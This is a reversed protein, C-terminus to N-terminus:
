PFLGRARHAEAVRGIALALAALRLRVGSDDAYSRCADYSREMIERLRANVEDESWFYAAIDQVWEFYSVTVGGSNALIDPVVLTGRENLITDAEPTTPGNAGEVVISARVRDANAETIQDELAAPVLMDCDMELLEENSISDGGPYGAVTEAEDRHRM